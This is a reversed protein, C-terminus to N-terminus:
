HPAIREPINAPRDPALTPTQRSSSRSATSRWQVPLRPRASRTTAAPRSSHSPAAALPSVIARKSSILDLDRSLTRPGVDLIRGGDKNEPKGATRISLESSACPVETAGERPRKTSQSDAILYQTRAM